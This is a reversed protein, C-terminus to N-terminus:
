LNEGGKFIVKKITLILPAGGFSFFLFNSVEHLVAFKVGSIIVALLPLGYVLSIATNTLLDYIFTLLFGLIGLKLNSMYYEVGNLYNIKSTEELNLLKFKAFLGGVVGYLSEGIICAIFISLDFGYPNLTGYVLWALVGVLVGPFVGMLYGSVFVFLDMFKVNPVTILAYNSALSLAVMIVILSLTKTSLINKIKSHPMTKIM